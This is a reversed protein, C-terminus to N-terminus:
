ESDPGHYQGTEGKPMPLEKGQFVSISVDQAFAHQGGFGIHKCHVQSGDRALARERTPLKDHKTDLVDECAVVMKKKQQGKQQRAAAQDLYALNDGRESCSM